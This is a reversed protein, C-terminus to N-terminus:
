VLSRSRVEERLPLPPENERVLEIDLGLEFPDPLVEALALRHVGDCRTPFLKSVTRPFHSSLALASAARSVLPGGLGDRSIGGGGGGFDGTLFV